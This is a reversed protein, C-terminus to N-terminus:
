KKYEGVKVKPPKLIKGALEYGKEVVVVITNNQTENEVKEHGVVEDRAVDYVSGAVPVIEKLGNEALTKKLLAAIHEVGTRWSADAKEWVEKNGMAREFSEVVPLIDSLLGENAFKVFAVRAKEDDKRANIFDAKARQWGGLYEDREKRLVKIEEKLKAVVEAPDKTNDADGEPEVNYEREIDM